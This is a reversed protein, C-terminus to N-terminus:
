EEGRLFRQLDALAAAGADRGTNYAKLMKEVNHETKGVELPLEPAIVFVAGNEERERIYDLTENYRIHRDALAASVAPMDKLFLNMVPLAKMKTKRYNRPRTLIVVNKTYGMDEFAKLPISDSIGGDLYRRGGIEVPVSVAPMSASARIWEMSEYGLDEVEHYVCAGTSVDTANVYFKQPNNTFTEEDMPDLVEPLRHYCFEANYLNGTTFLSRLSCYSPEHAFRTNYRIVRGTQKSTYNGGFCAGASVGIVGDFDIGNEMLVDIVGSSFLGRMAGGELVLGTKEKM